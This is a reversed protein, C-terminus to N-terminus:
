KEVQRKELVKVQQWNKGEGKEKGDKGGGIKCERLLLHSERECLRGKRGEKM